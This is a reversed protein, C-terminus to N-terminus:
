SFTIFTAVLGLYALYLLLGFVLVTLLKPILYKLLALLFVPALLVTNVIFSLGVFIIATLAIIGKLTLTIAAVIYNLITEEHANM